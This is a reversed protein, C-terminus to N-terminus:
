KVHVVRKVVRRNGSRDTAVVVVRVAFDQADGVASRSPKLKVKRLGTGLGRMRRVLIVEAAASLQAGSANARIELELRAPEDVTVKPKLGGLFDARSVNKPLGALAVGPRREDPCGNPALGATRPCVDTNDGRGDGDSDAARPNTGRNAEVADSAGDGDVDADCADGAGDKDLDAQNPNAVLACNDSALPDGDADVDTTNWNTVAAVQAQTMGAFVALPGDALSKAYAERAAFATGTDKFAELHMLIVTSHPPIILNGQAYRVHFQTGGDSWPTTLAEDSFIGNNPDAKGTKAGDWVHLFSRGKPGLTNFNTDDHITWPEGPEVAQDGDPTAGVLHNNGSVTGTYVLERHRLSDGPNRLVDLFRIFAPGTSPVYVERSVMLGGMAREPFVIADTGVRHACYDLTPAAFTSDGVKIAGWGANADYRPGRVVGTSGYVTWSQEEGDSLAFLRCDDSGSAPPAGIVMAALLLLGVLACALGAPLASCEPSRAGM